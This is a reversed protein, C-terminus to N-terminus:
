ADEPLGRLVALRIADLEQTRNEWAYRAEQEHNSVGDLQDPGGGAEFIGSRLADRATDFDVRAQSVRAEAEVLAQLHSALTTAYQARELADELEAVRSRLTRNQSALADTMEIRQALGTELDSGAIQQDERVAALEATTPARPRVVLHNDEPPPQDNSRPEPLDLM